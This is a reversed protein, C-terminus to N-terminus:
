NLESRVTFMCGRAQSDESAVKCTTDGSSSSVVIHGIQSSKTLENVIFVNGYKVSGVGTVRLVFESPMNKSLISDRIKAQVANGSSSRVYLIDKHFQIKTVIAVSSLCYM